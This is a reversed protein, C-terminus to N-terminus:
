SVTHRLLRLCDLTAAMDGAIAGDLNKLRANAGFELLLSVMEPKGSSAAYMLATAGTDNQNDIDIRAAHLRRV